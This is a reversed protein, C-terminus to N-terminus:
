TMMAFQALPGAAKFIDQGISAFGSATNAQSQAQFKAIEQQSQQNSLDFLTDSIQLNQSIGELNYAAEGTVQAQGGALGSGFQAGQNTASALGQSRALQAQRIQQTQQRRANIQMALQRQQNEKEQIGAININAQTVQQQYQSQQQTEFIDLGLGALGIGAGIGAQGFGGGSSNGSLANGSSDFGVGGGQGAAINDAGSYNSDFISM